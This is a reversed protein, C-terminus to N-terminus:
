RRPKHLKDAQAIMARDLGSTAYEVPASTRASLPGRTPTPNKGSLNTPANPDNVVVGGKFNNNM